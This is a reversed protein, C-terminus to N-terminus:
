TSPASTAELAAMTALGYLAGTAVTAGVQVLLGALAPSLRDIWRVPQLHQECGSLSGEAPSPNM